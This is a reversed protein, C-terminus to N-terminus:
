ASRSEKAAGILALVLVILAGKVINQSAVNINLTNLLADLLILFMAAGWIGLVNSRGGSILSGGLVVVAISNLLYPDGLSLTPSSFSGLLTGALAALVGSILYSYLIVRRVPIGSLFAASESQGVAQNRRGFVTKHLVFGFFLAAVICLVGLASVGAIRLHSFKSIVANPIAGGNGALISALSQLILGSALTAVIPPVRLGLIIGSNLLSAMLGIGVAVAVGLLLNGNTASIVQMSAFASVVIVSPVSLDIHGNGLTIVFMQGIGVLVLFPALSFVAGIVGVNIHGNAVSIGVWVLIAGIYVWIWPHDRFWKGVSGRSRVREPGAVIPLIGTTM